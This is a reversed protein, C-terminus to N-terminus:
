SIAIKETKQKRRWDAKRILNQRRIIEEEKRRKGKEDKLANTESKKSKRCTTEKTTRTGWKNSTGKEWYNIALKPCRFSIARIPYKWKARRISKRIWTRIVSM